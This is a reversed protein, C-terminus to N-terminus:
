REGRVTLGTRGGPAYPLGNLSINASNAIDAEFLQANSGYFNGGLQGSVNLRDPGGVLSGSINALVDRDRAPVITGGTINLRGAFERAPAGNIRGVFNEAYGTVTRNGFDARVVSDGYIISTTPTAVNILTTGDYLAVGSVPLGFSPTVPASDVRVRLAANENALAQYSEAPTPPVPGPGVGGDCGAVLVALALVGATSLPLSKM